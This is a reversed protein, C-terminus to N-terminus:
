NWHKDLNAEVIDLTINPHKSLVWWNWPKDPNAEIIEWTM